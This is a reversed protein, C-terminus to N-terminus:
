WHKDKVEQVIAVLRDCLFKNKLFDDVKLADKMEDMMEKMDLSTKKDEDAMQSDKEEFDAILKDDSIALLISTAFVLGGFLRSRVQEYFENRSITEIGLKILTSSLTAYYHDILTTRHEKRTEPSTSNFLFYILDAAPHGIRTLQWDVMKMETVKDQDDYRYMMNNNRYVNFRVFYKQYNFLNVIKYVLLRRSRCLGFSWLRGCIPRGYGKTRQEQVGRRVVFSVIILNLM